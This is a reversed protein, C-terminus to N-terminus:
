YSFNRKKKLQVRFISHGIANLLPNEFYATLLPTLAVDSLHARLTDAFSSWPLFTPRFSEMAVPWKKQVRVSQLKAFDTTHWVGETTFESVKYCPIYGLASAESAIADYDTQTYAPEFGIGRDYSVVCVSKQSSHQILPTLHANSRQSKSPLCHNEILFYDLHPEIAPLQYGFFLEPTTHFPDYLNIGFYKNAQYATQGQERLLRTVSDCRFQVYERLAEASRIHTPLASGHEKKFQRQCHVCACGFFPAVDQSLFSPPQGFIVNDIFIGDFSEQCAREVRQRILTQFHPNNPCTLSRGKSYPILRGRADRCFLDQDAFESTVVNLGQVYAHTRIHHEQFHPLKEQIFRYDSQETKESFGWSYTVWADSVGLVQKAQSVRDDDYLTLFSREDIRPSHYKTQLLRVTGPGGWAYMGAKIRLPTM